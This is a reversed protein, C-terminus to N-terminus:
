IEEMTTTQNHAGKGVPGGHREECAARVPCWDCQWVENPDTLIPPLDSQVVLTVRERLYREAEDLPLLDVPIRRQTDMDQYIVEGSNVVIENHDLLLRYLSLQLVHHVKAHPESIVEITKVEHEGLRCYPCAILKRRLAYPGENIVQETEPCIYSRWGTPVSKSTKFDLLKKQEILVLDPQGTVEVLRGDPTEVTMAFRKEAILHDAEEAYQAAVGHMLMGRYAWYSESPKLWYPTEQMLRVKRLCSILTTVTLGYDDPRLGRVIGAIVPATQHCGLLAGGRACALCAEITVPLDEADCNFGALPM